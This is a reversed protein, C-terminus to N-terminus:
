IDSASLICLSLPSYDSGTNLHFAGSRWHTRLHAEMNSRGILAVCLVVVRFIVCGTSKVSLQCSHAQRVVPVIIHNYNAKQAVRLSCDTDRESFKLM